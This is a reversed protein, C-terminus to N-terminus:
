FIDQKDHIDKNINKEKESNRWKEKNNEETDGHRQPL